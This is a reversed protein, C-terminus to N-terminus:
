SSAYKPFFRRLQGDGWGLPEVCSRARLYSRFGALVGTEQLLCLNVRLGSKISGRMVLSAMANFMRREFFRNMRLSAALVFAKPWRDLRKDYGYFCGLVM